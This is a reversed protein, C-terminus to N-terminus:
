LTRFRERNDLKVAFLTNPMRCLERSDTEEPSATEGPEEPEGTIGALVINVMDTGGAWKYAGYLTDRVLHIHDGFGSFIAAGNDWKLM